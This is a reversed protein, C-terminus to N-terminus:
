RVAELAEGIEKLYLSRHRASATEDGLRAYERSLADHVEFDDPIGLALRTLFAQLAADSEGSRAELLGMSLLLGDADPYAEVATRLLEEAEAYEERSLHDEVETRFANIERRRREAEESAAQIRQYERLDEQAEATMGLKTLARARSYRAQEHEPDLELVRTAFDVAEDARDLLLSAEAVGALAELNGSDSALVERYAELSEEIRFQELHIGAVALKVDIDYPYAELAQQYADWATDFEFLFRRQDGIRRLVIARQTPSTPRVSEFSQVAQTTLSASAYAEALEYRAGSSGPFALVAGLMVREAADYRRRATLLQAVAFHLRESVATERLSTELRALSEGASEEGLASSRLAATLADLVGAVDPDAGPAAAWRSALSRQYLAIAEAYDAMEHRITALKALPGALAPHAAGWFAESIALSRRAVAEADTLRGELRSLEALDDLVLAVDPTEPGATAEVIELARQFLPRAGAYDSLSRRVLALNSLATATGAHSPGLMTESLRLARAFLAEAEELGSDMRFLTIALYNLSSLLQADESAPASERIALARRFAPEALRYLGDQLYAAALNTLDEAIRPSDDGWAAEAERLAALFYHRAEMYLGSQFAQVGATRAERWREEAPLLTQLLVYTDGVRFAESVDGPETRALAEQFESRL